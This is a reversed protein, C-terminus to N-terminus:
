HRGELSVTSGQTYILKAITCVQVKRSIGAGIKKKPNRRQWTESLYKWDAVTWKTNETTSGFMKRTHFPGATDKLWLIKFKKSPHMQQIM